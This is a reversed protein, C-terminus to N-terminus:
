GLLAFLQVLLTSLPTVFYHVSAIVLVVLGSGLWTLRKRLAQRHKLEASTVIYPISVLPAHGTLAGIANAGRVRGFLMELVTALGVAAAVSLFFGFLVIKKRSPKIPFEPLLPTELVSIREGQQGGELSEAVQANLLRARLDDYKTQAAEHDRQLAALDREVQPARVVESRLQGISGRLRAQQTALLDVRAQVSSIRAELRSVEHRAQAAAAARSPSEVQSARAVSDQLNAVRRVQARVDPHDETYRSRLQALETTARSLETEAESSAAPLATTPTVAGSRVGALEVELSRMEDLAERQDREVVRLETELMQVSTLAAAPSDAMSGGQQRKFTAIRREYEELQVRLKEAEQSLFETTRTAMQVRDRVSAELFLAVLANAVDFAKDPAGLQVNVIFPVTVDTRQGYHGVEALPRVEISQRLINVMDADKLSVGSGTDFVQHALAIKLLNDRTMVRHHLSQLRQDPSTSVTSQVVEGSIQSGEALLVASSEYVRPLLLSVVVSTTLVLGFAIIMFLSWRRAISLYDHLSLQYDAAM